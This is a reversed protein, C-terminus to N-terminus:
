AAGLLPLAAVQAPQGNIDVMTGPTAFEHRIYGLAFPMPLPGSVPAVSTVRGANVNDKVSVVAGPAPLSDSHQPLTFCVFTRNTHGRAYIRAVIEQGIYCGKRYSIARGAQGTEPALVTSDIDVGFRPIGAQIRLIELDDLSLEVAGADSLAVRCPGDLDNTGSLYLDYAPASILTTRAAFAAQGDAPANQGETWTDAGAIGFHSALFAPADTGGILFQGMQESVNTIRCKEMILYKDLTEAVFQAQGPEVDLLLANDTCLVRMDGLVQGTAQLMFAYCGRGPTLAAVDNTVMGQLFSQRDRGMLQLRGRNSRNVHFLSPLPDPIM